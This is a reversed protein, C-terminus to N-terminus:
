TVSRRQVFQVADLTVRNSAIKAIFGSRAYILNSSLLFFSNSHCFFFVQTGYENGTATLTCIEKKLCDEVTLTKTLDEDSIDSTFLKFEELEIKEIEICTNYCILKCKEDEEFEEKKVKEGGELSIFELHEEKMGIKERLCKRVRQKIFIFDFFNSKKDLIFSM